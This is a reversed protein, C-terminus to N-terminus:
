SHARALKRAAPVWALSRWRFWMMLGRVWEDAAYAIWIGVLGFGLVSGLLWSGGALVIAMSWVGTTVTFRGDGAARLANIVILNFCRGSELALNCWLLTLGTAIIAEDQTFIGLLTRGMLAALISVVLSVVIGRALARRVLEQAQRFKRAGIMHGVVIEVGLGVALASLLIVYNIQFVYTQTSLAASGMASVVVVSVLFALRYAINELAAPLGVRLVPQLAKMDVHWWDRARHTLRAVFGLRYRAFTLHLVLGLAYAITVALAYGPLGFAPLFVTALAAQTANMVLFVKLTDRAYGHARLASALTANLSDLIIAFAVARLYPTALEVVDPPAQMLWMLPTAGILILLAVCVGVVGAAAFSNRTIILAGARDGAGLRNSVAVAVGAGVVRFLLVLLSTLHLTIAFAAAHTDGVRSVLWTAFIGVGIALALEAFIPAAIHLLRPQAPRSATTM